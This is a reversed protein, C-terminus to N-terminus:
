GFYDDHLRYFTNVIQKKTQRLVSIRACELCGRVEMVTELLYTDQVAKDLLLRTLEGALNLRKCVSRSMQGTFLAEMAYEVSMEAVVSALRQICRTRRRESDAEMFYDSPPLINDSYIIQSSAQLYGFRTKLMSSFVSNIQEALVAQFNLQSLYSIARAGSIKEATILQQLKQELMAFFVNIETTVKDLCSDVIDATIKDNLTRVAGLETLSYSQNCNAALQATM